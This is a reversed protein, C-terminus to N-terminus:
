KKPHKISEEVENFATLKATHNKGKNLKSSVLFLAAKAQEFAERVEEKNPSNGNAGAMPVQTQNDKLNFLAALGLVLILVAAVRWNIKIVGRERPSTAGMKAKIKADFDLSLKEEQHDIMKFYAAEEEWEPGVENYRFFEKLASEEELSSEGKWFKDLYAAINHHNLGM